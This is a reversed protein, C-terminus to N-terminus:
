KEFTRGKSGPDGSPKTADPREHGRTGPGPDGGRIKKAEGKVSM